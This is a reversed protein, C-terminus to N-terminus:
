RRGKEIRGKLLADLSQDNVKIVQWRIGPIDGKARGQKGGIAEIIVEDHENIFKIANYGPVFATVRRGNKILQTVVCNSTLFGNAFFNHNKSETTIDRVDELDIKEISEIKELVLGNNLTNEKCWEEFSKLHKNPIKIKSENINNRLWYAASEQTLGDLNINKVAKSISYGNTTLLKIQKLANIRKEIIYKKTLLYEYMYSSLNERERSYIFGIKGYLNLLSYLDNSLTFIYQITRNGSKRIFENVPIISKIEINFEKLIKSLSSAFNEISIDKLKNIGFDPRIPTTHNRQKSISPKRMESGFFARLFEKKIWKPSKNLWQPISYDILPKDGVPVGLAMLLLAFSKNTIRFQYSRGKIIRIGKNSQVYSKSFSEIIPSIYFGLDNIDRKIEDLDEPKGTFVIKYRLSNNAKDEYIGGDGFLHGIIRTIKAINKNSTRFPLLGKEELEKYVKSFKTNQPAITEINNKDVLLLDSKEFELSEYPCIILRDNVNLDKLDMKGKNTYFPHDQTAIIERGTEKTKIKYVIDNQKKTNFKMYTTIKTPELGNDDINFSMVNYNIQPLDKIKIYCGDLMVKTDPSICKRMASNPQKAERQTKELVIAKAQAAAKLPDSKEKLRLTRRLYWYDQWRATKRRVKLKRAAGLGKSKNGM